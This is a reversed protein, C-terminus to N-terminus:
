RGTNLESSSNDSTEGTDAHTGPMALSAGGKLSKAQRKMRQKFRFSDGLFEIVTCRHTVRDLLAMTLTDDQFLQSWQTFPLNTTIILAVHDYIAACFQFFLQAGQQTFPIFGLEDIVILQQRLAAQILRPMQLKDQAVLLDNVLGAATYFRVHHKQRCAQLALASAIHSKGLGPAGLLIVTEAKHIYDGQALELIRAKNLSQLATFDFDALEKLAPFRAAQICRQQQNRDRQMVEQESLALLYRDFSLNAKSAEEALRAHNQIFTPLRLTKLHLHLLAQVTASAPDAITLTM